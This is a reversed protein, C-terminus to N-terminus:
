SAEGVSSVVDAPEKGAMEVLGSEIGNMLRHIDVRERAVRKGSSSPGGDLDVKAM